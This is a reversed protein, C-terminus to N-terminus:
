ITFGTRSQECGAVQLRHAFLRGDLKDASSGYGAIQRRRICQSRGINRGLGIGFMDTAAEERVM